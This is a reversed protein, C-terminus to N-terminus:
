NSEQHEHWLREVTRGATEYSFGRRLLFSGLRRRFDQHDAGALSRAKKEAAQYAASDDDVDSLASAIIQRSVGKRQLEAGILRSSRPSFSLRNERWFSAFAADDVLGQLTLMSVVRDILAADLGKRRLLSRIENETRPRYSLYRVAADLSRQLLDADKLAEVREESLTQEPALRIQRAVSTSLSFAFEGDLFVELRGKRPKMGTITKM